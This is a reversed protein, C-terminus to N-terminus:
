RKGNNIKDAVVFLFYINMFLLIFSIMLLPIYSLFIWVFIIILLVETDEEEAAYNKLLEAIHADSINGKNTVNTNHRVSTVNRHNNKSSGTNSNTKSTLPRVSDVVERIIWCQFEFPDSPKASSHILANEQNTANNHPVTDTEVCPVPFITDKSKLSNLDSNEISMSSTQETTKSASSNSPPAPPLITGQMIKEKAELQETLLTLDTDTVEDELIWKSTPATTSTSEDVDDWAGSGVDIVKNKSNQSSNIKVPQPSVNSSIKQATLTGQNRLVVWGASQSSCSRSNCM